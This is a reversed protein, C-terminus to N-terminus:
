VNQREYLVINIKKPLGKAGVKALVFFRWGSM